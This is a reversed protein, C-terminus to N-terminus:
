VDTKSEENFIISVKTNDSVELKMKSDEYLINFRRAVNHMGIHSTPNKPNNILNNIEVVTEPDISKGDDTVVIYSVGNKRYAKIDIFATTKDQFSYKISNNILPEISLKPVLVEEMDKAIEIHYDFKNNFRIKYLLLYKKIYVLDDKLKVYLISNDISYRLIDNLNLIYKETLKTDYHMSYRITELSNYLFHPNFQATLKKREYLINTKHLENNLLMEENIKDLMKNINIALDKFDGDLGRLNIRHKFDGSIVLNSDSIIKNFSETNEKAIRAVYKNSVNIIVLSIVGLIFAILFYYPTTNTVKELYYTTFYEHEETTVKYTSNNLDIKNSARFHHNYNEIVIDSSAIINNFNDTIVYNGIHPLLAYSLSKVDIEYTELALLKDGDYIPGFIILSSLNSLLDRYVLFGNKQDDKIRNFMIDLYLNYYDNSTNKEMYLYNNHLDYINNYYKVNISKSFYYNKSSIDKAILESRKLLNIFDVDNSHSDIQEYFQDIFLEFNNSVLDINNNQNINENIRSISFVVMVSIIGVVLIISISYKRIEQRLKEEFRM